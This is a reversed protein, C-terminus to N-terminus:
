TPIEEESTARPQTQSPTTSVQTEPQVSEDAKRRHRHKKKKVPPGLGGAADKADQDLVHM